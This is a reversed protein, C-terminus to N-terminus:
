RSRDGRRARVYSKREETAGPEVRHRQPRGACPGQHSGERRTDGIPDLFHEPAAGKRGINLPHSHVAGLAQALDEGAAVLRRGALGEAAGAVEREPARPRVSAPEGVDPAGPRPPRVARGPGRDRTRGAEELGNRGLLAAAPAASRRSIGVATPRVRQVDVWGVVRPELQLRHHEDNVAALCGSM